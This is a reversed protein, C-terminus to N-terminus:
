QSEGATIREFFVTQEDAYLQQWGSDAQHLIDILKAQGSRNLLAHTAGLQQLEALANEGREIKLYRQWYELPYLEIRPDAAVRVDPLAWILYSGYGMDHFLRANNPLPHEIMWQVAEVPTGQEIFVGDTVRDDMGGFVPPLDLAPKFPPQVLILPVFLAAMIGYNLLPIQAVQRTRTTSRSRLLGAIVPWAVMGFWLLNRVSSIALYAFAAVLLADTLDFRQRKRLWLLVVLVCAFPVIIGPFTTLDTPKWEIVLQRVAPNQVLNGVYGLVGWGRPNILLAFGTLIGILWLWGLQEKPLPAGRRLLYKLSEGGITVGLLGLGVAFAGHLNVWASMLLPIALLWRRRLQGARFAGLLAWTLAFPLWSFMQPRVSLNNLTMMAAGAIALAALKWSGSRRWGDVGIVGYALLLLLNRLFVILELSGISHLAFFLWESLWSQYFFPTNAPLVWSYRDVNPVAGIQAIDRGVAMHWWFDLPGIPVLAGLCGFSVLVVIPWLHNTSLSFHRRLLM